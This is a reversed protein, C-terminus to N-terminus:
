FAKAGQCFPNAGQCFSNAGVRFAKAGRGFPHAGQEFSHAILYSHRLNFPYNRIHNDNFGKLTGSLLISEDGSPSNLNFGKLIKPIYLGYLNWISKTCCFLQRKELPHL